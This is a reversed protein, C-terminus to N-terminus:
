RTSSPRCYVVTGRTTPRVLAVARCSSFFRPKVTFIASPTCSLVSRRPSITDVLGPTPAWIWLPPTIVSTGDSPGTIILTGGTLPILRCSAWSASTLAPSFAPGTTFPADAVIGAPM